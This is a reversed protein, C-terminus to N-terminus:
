VCRVARQRSICQVSLSSLVTFCMACVSEGGEGEIM